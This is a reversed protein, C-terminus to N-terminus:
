NCIINSINLLIVNNVLHYTEKDIIFLADKSSPLAIIYHSTIFIKARHLLLHWLAHIFTDSVPVPIETKSMNIKSSISKIKKELEEANNVGNFPNLKTDLTYIETRSTIDWIHIKGNYDILPLFKDELSMKTDCITAHISIEYAEKSNYVSYLRDNYVFDQSASNINTIDIIYVTKHNWQIFLKTGKELFGYTYDYSLDFYDLYISPDPVQINILKRSNWDFYYIHQRYYKNIGIIIFNDVLSPANMFCNNPTMITEIKDVSTSDYIVMQNYEGISNKPSYILAFYKRDSSIYFNRFYYDEPCVFEQCQDNCCNYLKVNQDMIDESFMNNNTCVSMLIRHNDLPYINEIKYGSAEIFIIEISQTHCDLQYIYKKQKKDVFLIHQKSLLDINCM